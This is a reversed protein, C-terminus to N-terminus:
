ASTSVIGYPVRMPQLPM